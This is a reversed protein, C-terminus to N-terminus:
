FIESIEIILSCINSVQLFFPLIMAFNISAAYAFALGFNISLFTFDKLLTLDMANSLRNWIRNWIKLPKEDEISLSVHKGILPQDETGIMRKLHRSVPQYLCGGVVGHLALSGMILITGRFGYEDLLKQVIIPLIMQGLGTGALAFGVARSRKTTFYSSVAVFSAPAILGLGIGVMFSYTFIIQPLTTTIASMMLGTSTMLSGFITIKRASFQKLVPGTVFGSLNLFVSCLNMVLAIRSTSEM